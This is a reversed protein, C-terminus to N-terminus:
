NDQNRLNRQSWGSRDTRWGFFCAGMSVKRKTDHQRRLIEVKYEPHDLAFLSRLLPEADHGYKVYNKDSIDPATRQGTKELYLGINTKYPNLGSYRLHMLDVSEMDPM